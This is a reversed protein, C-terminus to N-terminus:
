AMSRPVSSGHEGEDLRIGAGAELQAVHRLRRHADVVDPDADQLGADAAGVEVDGVPVGPGLLRDPRREDDAVLEDALDELEAAVDVVECDAVDDAALAVDDAAAAAVAPGAAPVEARVRDPQAHAAVAREGLLDHQRHRVDPVVPRPDVASTALRDEVREAVRDVGRERERDEALVDEDDAGPRDPQHRGGDDAVGAGAVDDDALGVREAALQRHLHAGREDDIRALPLRWSTWARARCPRPSRRRGRSTRCRRRRQAVRDAFMAWPAPM